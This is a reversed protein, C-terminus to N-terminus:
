VAIAVITVLVIAFGAIFKGFTGFTKGWFTSHGVTWNERWDRGDSWEGYMAGAAAGIGGFLVAAVLSGIIPIPIGIIAGGIAGVISGVMSYLTSKNSAGARKAGAAGAALELLEGVFALAFAILVPGVGISARGSEPGIWAFVALALVCIWNGPLAILNTLWALCCILLLAIALLLTGTPEAWDRWQLALLLHSVSM